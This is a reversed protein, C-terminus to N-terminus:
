SIMEKIKHLIKKVFLQGEGTLLLWSVFYGCVIAVITMLIGHIGLNVMAVFLGAVIAWSIPMQWVPYHELNDSPLVNTWYFVFNFGCETLYKTISEEIHLRLDQSINESITVHVAVTASEGEFSVNNCCCDKPLIDSIIKKICESDLWIKGISNSKWLYFIVFVEVIVRTPVM